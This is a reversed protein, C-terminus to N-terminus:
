QSTDERRMIWYFSVMEMITRFMVSFRTHSPRGYMRKKMRAPVEAIILQKRRARILIEAFFFIGMSKYSVTGETFLKRRYVQIWNVDGIGINFFLPILIRNYIFSAIRAFISYGMREIRLGVIIDSIDMMPMYAMMDEIDVPNDVPVLIVYEKSAHCVGTKFAGGIGTNREHHICLINEERKAINSIIEGTKDISKDDVIIIEYDIGLSRFTKINRLIAKEITQEENYAPVIVSINYKRSEM